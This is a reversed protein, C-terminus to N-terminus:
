VVALIHHSSPQPAMLKGWPTVCHALLLPSQVQGVGKGRPRLTQERADRRRNGKCVYLHLQINQFIELFRCFIQQNLFYSPSVQKTKNVSCMWVNFLCVGLWGSSIDLHSLKLNKSNDWICKQITVPTHYSMQHVPLSLDFSFIHFAQLKSCRNNM